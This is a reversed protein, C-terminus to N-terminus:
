SDILFGGRKRVCACARVCVGVWVLDEFPNDGMQCTCGHGIRGWGRGRLRLERLGPRRAREERLGPDERVDVGEGRSESGCFSNSPGLIYARHLNGISYIEQACTVLGDQPNPDRACTSTSTAFPEPTPSPAALVMPPLTMKMGGQKNKHIIVFSFVLCPPMCIVKGGM